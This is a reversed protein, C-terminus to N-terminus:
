LNHHTKRGWFWFPLLWPINEASPLSGTLVRSFSQHNRSWWRRHIFLLFLLLQTTPPNVMSFLSTVKTKLSLPLLICLCFALLHHHPLTCQTIGIEALNILLQTFLPSIPVPFSLLTCYGGHHWRCWWSRRVEAEQFKYWIPVQGTGHVESPRVGYGGVVCNIKIFVSCPSHVCTPFRCGFAALYRSLFQFIWTVM